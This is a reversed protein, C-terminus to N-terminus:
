SSLVMMQIPISGQMLVRLEQCIMSIVLSISRNAMRGSVMTHVPDPIAVLETVAMQPSMRVAIEQRVMMHRLDRRQGAIVVVSQVAAMCCKRVIGVPEVVVVPRIVPDMVVVVEVLRVPIRTVVAIVVM